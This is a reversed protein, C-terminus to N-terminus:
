FRQSCDAVLNLGPPRAIRARRCTWKLNALGYRTTIPDVHEIKDTM